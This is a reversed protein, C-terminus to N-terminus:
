IRPGSPNPAIIPAASIYSGYVPLHVGVASRDRGRMPCVRVSRGSPLASAAPPASEASISWATEEVVSIYSGSVSLHVGPGSSKSGRMWWEAVRVDSPLTRRIPPKTGSPSPYASVEISNTEGYCDAETIHCVTERCPGQGSPGPFIVISSSAFRDDRVAQGPRGGHWRRRCDRCAASRLTRPM